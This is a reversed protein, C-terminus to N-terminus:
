QCVGEAQRPELTASNRATRRTQSAPEVTALWEAILERNWQHKDNMHVVVRAIFHTQQGFVCSCPPMVATELDHFRKRLFSLCTEHSMPVRAGAAEAAAGLACSGYRDLTRRYAQPRLMAGLRIAESLTMTLQVDFTM